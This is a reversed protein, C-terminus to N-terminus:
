ETKKSKKTEVFEVCNDIEADKLRRRIYRDRPTGHEDVSIKVVQGKRYQGLDANFRIEKTEYGKFM